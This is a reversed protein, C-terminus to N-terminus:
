AGNPAKRVIQADCSEHAHVSETVSAGLFRRGMFEALYSETTSEASLTVHAIDASEAVLRAGKQLPLPSVVIGGLGSVDKIRYAVAALDEQKLGATTHRRVEVVLFGDSGECWARADLEWSTGSLGDLSQKGEVASIGLVERHDALVKRAFNEYVSWPVPM